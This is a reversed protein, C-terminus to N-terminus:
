MQISNNNVNAQYGAWKRFFGNEAGSAKITKIMQVGSATTSAPLASDRIGVRSLNIRKNTVIRATIVNVFLSSIGIFSMM